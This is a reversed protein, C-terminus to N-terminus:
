MLCTRLCESYERMCQQPSKNGPVRSDSKCQDRDRRCQGPCDSSKNFRTNVSVTAADGNNGMSRVTISLFNKKDIFPAEGVFYGVHGNSQRILYTDQDARM